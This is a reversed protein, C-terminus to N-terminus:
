ASAGEPVILEVGPFYGGVRTTDRTVLRLGEVAAHAGIFFDPLVGTKTGRRRRYRLFAEGALFLAERPLERFGLDLTDLLRELTETRGFGVACEAYIVPSVLLPVGDDVSELASVSGEYWPSLPDSIDIVVCSDVLVGGM